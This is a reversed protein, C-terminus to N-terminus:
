ASKKEGRKRGGAGEERDEEKKGKLHTPPKQKTKNEPWPNSHQLVDSYIWSNSISVLLSVNYVYTYARPISFYDFVFFIHTYACM